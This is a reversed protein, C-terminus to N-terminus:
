VHYWIGHRPAELVMRWHQCPHMSLARVFRDRQHCSSSPLVPLIQDGLVDDDSWLRSYRERSINALPPRLFRLASRVLFDLDFDPSFIDHLPYPFISFLYEGCNRLIDPVLGPQVSDLQDNLCRLGVTAWEPLLRRVSRRLQRTRLHLFSRLLLGLSGVLSSIRWGSYRLLQPSRGPTSSGSNDARERHECKEADNDLTKELVERIREPRSAGVELTNFVRIREVATQSMTPRQSILGRNCLDETALFWLRRDEFHKGDRKPNDICLINEPSHRSLPYTTQRTSIQCKRFSSVLRQSGVLLQCCHIFQFPIKIKYTKTSYRLGRPPERM